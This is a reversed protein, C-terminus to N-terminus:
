LPWFLRKRANGMYQNTRFKILQKIQKELIQPNTWFTNSSIKDINVDSTWKNINPFHRTLETLHHKTTYKILYRQFNRIFGKYPTYHM